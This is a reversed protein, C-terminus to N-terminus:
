LNDVCTYPTEYTGDEGMALDINTKVITGIKACMMIRKEDLSHKKCFSIIKLIVATAFGCM